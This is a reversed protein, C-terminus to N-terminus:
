KVIYKLIFNAMKKYTAKELWMFQRQPMKIGQDHRRAYKLKNYIRATNKSAKWRTSNRLTGKDRLMKGGKRKEAYKKSWAPWPTGDENKENDFNQVVERWGMSGIVDMAKKPNAAKKQMKQFRRQVRDLGKIEVTM